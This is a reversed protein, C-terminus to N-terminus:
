LVYKDMSKEIIADLIAATSFDIRTKRILINRDEGRLVGDIYLKASQSSPAIPFAFKESERRADMCVNARGQSSLMKLKEEFTPGSEVIPSKSERSESGKFFDKWGM